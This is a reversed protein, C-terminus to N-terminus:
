GILIFFNVAYFSQSVECLSEKGFPNEYYERFHTLKELM